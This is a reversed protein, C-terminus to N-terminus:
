RVYHEREKENEACFYELLEQDPQLLMHQTLKVPQKLANADTVTIDIELKGTSVRRYREVIMLDNSHPHGMADLWALESYGTSKVEFVDGDWRGVSYGMLRPQPDRPLSRGDTFVERFTQDHEHLLVVLGPTQIIKVPTPISLLRLAGAPKCHAIPDDVGQSKLRKLLTEKYADTTIALPDAGADAGINIMYRPLIDNEVGGPTGLPDPRPMWIGSLDPKGNVRRPPADRNVAGGGTRPLNPTRVAEWQAFGPVVALVVVGVCLTLTKM